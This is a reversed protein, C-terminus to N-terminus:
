GDRFDLYTLIIRPRKLRSSTPYAWEELINEIKLVQILGRNLDIWTNVAIINDFDAKKRIAMNYGRSM